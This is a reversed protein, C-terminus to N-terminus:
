YHIKINQLIGKSVVPIGIAIETEVSFIKQKRDLKKNLNKIIDVLLQAMEKIM